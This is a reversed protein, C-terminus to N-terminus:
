ITIIVSFFWCSKPIIGLCLWSAIDVGWLCIYFSM